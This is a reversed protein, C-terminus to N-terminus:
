LNSFISYLLKEDEENPIYQNNHKTGQLVLKGEDYALCRTFPVPQWEQSDLPATAFVTGDERESFYLTNACNTHVYMLEEDYILLNLKNGESMSCAINDILLFRETKTLARGKSKQMENIQDVIYLLVRESDTDGAQKHVYSNLPPYDFITGNHIMVWKRGYNDRMFYPHCNNYDVQGITAYRIHAFANIAYIPQSLREHLYHSKTAQLSEKEINNSNGDMIALGWGHPHQASRSYFERLLDNM